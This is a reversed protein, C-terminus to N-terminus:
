LHNFNLLPPKAVHCTSCPCQYHLTCHNNDDDFNTIFNNWFHKKLKSKIMVFPQNLDIVPIANWPSPLRHFYTHKSQNNLHHHLHTLKNSSGSRTITSDFSIFNTIGFQNTPAKLSKIAFLINQLEFLYMLPLLKLKILRSKYGSVYDQLIFKTAWRQIREINDIDKLLYPRWLQTCYM